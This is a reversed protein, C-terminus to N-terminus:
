KNWGFIEDYRSDPNTILWFALKFGRANDDLKSIVEEIFIRVGEKNGCQRAYWTAGAYEALPDLNFRLFYSDLMTKKTLINNDILRQVPDVTLDPLIKKIESRADELSFDHPVFSEGVSLKGMLTVIRLMLEESLYNKMSTNGPNVLKLYDFYVQPITAPIKDILETTDRIGTIYNEILNTIVIRVLIPTVPLDKDGSKFIQAIKQAFALQDELKLLPHDDYSQLVTTILHLLNKSDLPQPYILLSQQNRFDFENRGSVLLANLPTDGHINEMYQIVEPRMESLADALVVIRQKRLLATILEPKVIKDLWATYYESILKVIDTTEEELLFPIRRIRGTHVLNEEELMWRGAECAFSTKGSGGPGIVQTIAKKKNLIRQLLQRSPKEILEGTTKHTLRIPLPVYGNKSLVTEAQLYQKKLVSFNNKVWADLCRNSHAFLSVPFIINPFGLIINFPSPLTNRFEKLPLSEHLKLIALPFLLWLLFFLLYYGLVLAIWKGYKSWFLQFPTKGLTFYQSGGNDKLSFFQTFDDTTVKLSLSYKNISTGVQLGMGKYRFIGERFEPKTSDPQSFVCKLDEFEAGEKKRTEAIGKLLLNSNSLNNYSQKNKVKFKLQILLSDEGKRSIKISDILPYFIDRGYLRFIDNDSDLYTVTNPTNVSSHVNIVEQFTKEADWYEGNSSLLFTSNGIDGDAILLGLGNSNNFFVPDFDSITPLSIFKSFDNKVEWTEGNKSYELNSGSQLGYIGKNTEQIEFSPNFISFDSNEVKITLWNKGNKSFLLEGNDGRILFGKTTLYIAKLTVYSDNERVKEWNKGDSSYIITGSYGSAVFGNEDGSIAYLDTKINPQKITLWDDKGNRSYLIIGSDGVAVFGNNNEFLAQIETKISGKRVQQWSRGNTSYIINGKKDLAVFGKSNGCVKFFNNKEGQVKIREWNTGNISYLISGSDGVAVLGKETKCISKLTYDSKGIGNEVWEKGDMSSYVASKEGVVVFRGNGFTVSNVSHTNEILKWDRGDTSFHIGQRTDICIIGIENALIKEPWKIASKPKIKEWNKGDHSLLILGAEDVAFYGKSNSTVSVIELQTYQSVVEEWQKGDTSHIFSGRNSAAVFGYPGSTVTTLKETISTKETLEWDKGNNSYVITGSDGVAIIVTGKQCISHYSIAPLTSTKLLQWNKGDVSNLIGGNMGVAIFGDHTGLISNIPEMPEADWVQEWDIGNKSYFLSGLHNIAVFGSPNSSIFKILNAGDIDNVFKWNQGDYSHVFEGRFSSAVFGLKEQYCVATLEFNTLKQVKYDPIFDKETYGQSIFDTKVKCGTFFIIAGAIFCLIFLKKGM